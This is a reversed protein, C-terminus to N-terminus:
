NKIATPAKKTEEKVVTGGRLREEAFFGIVQHRKRHRGVVLLGRHHPRLHDIQTQNDFGFRDHRGDLGIQAFGALKTPMLGYAIIIPKIFFM